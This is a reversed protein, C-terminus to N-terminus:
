AALLRNVASRTRESQVARWVCETKFSIDFGEAIGKSSTIIGTNM